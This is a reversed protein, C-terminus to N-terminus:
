VNVWLQTRQRKSFLCTSATAISHCFTSMCFAFFKHDRYIHVFWSIDLPL